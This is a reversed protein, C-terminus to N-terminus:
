GRLAITAVVLVRVADEFIVKARTVVRAGFEFEHPWQGVAVHTWLEDNLHAAALVVVAHLVDLNQDVAIHHAIRRRGRVNEIGGTAEAADGVDLHTALVSAAVLAAYRDFDINTQGTLRAVARITADAVLAEADGAGVYFTAETCAAVGGAGAIGVDAGLVGFAHSGAGIDTLQLLPLARRTKAAGLRALGVHAPRAHDFVRSAATAARALIAASKGAEEEHKESQAQLSSSSSGLGGPGTKKEM